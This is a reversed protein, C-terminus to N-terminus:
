IRPNPESFFITYRHNSEEIDTCIAVVNYRPPAKLMYVQGAEFVQPLAALTIPPEVTGGAEIQLGVARGVRCVLMMWRPIPEPIPSFMLRMLKCVRTSRGFYPVVIDGAKSYWSLIPEM